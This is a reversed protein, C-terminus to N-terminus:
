FSIEQSIQNTQFKSFKGNGENLECKATYMFIVVQKMIEPETKNIVIIFKDKQTLTELQNRTNTELRNFNTSIVAIIFLIINFFFFDSKKGAFANSRAALICKHVAM